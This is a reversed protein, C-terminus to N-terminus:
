GAQELQRCAAQYQIKRTLDLERRFPRWHAVAAEADSRKWAEDGAALAARRGAGTAVKILSTVLVDVLAVTMAGYATWAVLSGPDVEVKSMYIVAVVVVVWSALGFASTWCPMVPNFFTRIRM